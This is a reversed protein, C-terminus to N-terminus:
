KLDRLYNLLMRVGWGTGGIPTEPKFEKEAYSPGAIDLHVWPIDHIFKELFQAATIVGAPRGGVNRVDAIKSKILERYHAHMPLEWVHEGSQKSAVNLAKKIDPSTGLMGTIESGLAIIVAGTLTALDIMYDPKIKLSAFALADALTIRGEADTNEVEITTGDMASIVDGPRYARGGPMNEVAIFLGHIEVNPKLDPLAKFVGLVSASGAMDIKMDTMGNEPKLNLGGADFTVAKGILVVKKITARRENSTGHKRSQNNPKYVLHVFKPEHISGMAVAISAHMGLKEMEERGRVKCTIGTGRGSLSEAVKVMEGPHMSMAPTNVLDRALITGSSYIQGIEIGRELEKAQKGDKLSIAVETLTKKKEENKQTQKRFSTFGYSGLEFGEVLYQAGEISKKIASTITQDLVINKAKISNVQKVIRAAMSRLHTDQFKKKEGMGAFLVHKIKGEGLVPMMSMEGDKGTFSRRKLEVKIASNLTSSLAPVNINISDTKWVGVVLVDCACSGIEETNITYKM